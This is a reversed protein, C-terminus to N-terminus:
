TGSPARDALVKRLLAIWLRVSREDFDRRYLENLEVQYHAADRIIGAMFERVTITMLEDATERVSKEKLDHSIYEIGLYLQKSFWIPKFYVDPAAKHPNHEARRRKIGLFKRIKM